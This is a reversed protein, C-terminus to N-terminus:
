TLVHVAVDFCMKPSELADRFYWRLQRDLEEHRIAHEWVFHSIVAVMNIGFVVRRDKTEQSKSPQPSLETTEYPEIWTQRGLNTGLCKVNSMKSIYFSYYHMTFLMTYHMSLLKEMSKELDGQLHPLGYVKEAMRWHMKWPLGWMVRWSVDSMTPCTRRFSQSIRTAQM